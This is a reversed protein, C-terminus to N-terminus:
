GQHPDEGLEIQKKQMEDLRATIRARQYYTLDPEQALRSLQLVAEHIQGRLYYSEAIAESARIRNGSADSARAYLEQLLPDDSNRLLQERLIREAQRAREENKEYLLAEGFEMVIAHNGPFNNYLRDLRELAAATHGSKLDLDAIQLEFALHTQHVMLSELIKRAEDYKGQQQYVIATGYEIAQVEDEDIDARRRRDNFYKLADGPSDSVMARLRAQMLYFDLQSSHEPANMRSARDEAEAIRSVNVPHTRLYEPPGEGGARTVRDMKEFFTVMGNPDYGSQSLTKIGIRDAEAEHQRTFNIQAQQLAATGGILAGQIAEGGGGGALVLGLMALAIPITMAKTKELTRYLHLQTIHAIEHALVGAIENESDATLIMGTFLAIVGGPAAFANVMNENLVVFTFAKDPRDSYSVLRYGMDSFFAAIQPDEVLVEYARMQMLLTRAYDEEEKRSLISDASAGMDPLTVNDTQAVSAMSVLVMAASLLIRQLIPPTKFLRRRPMTVPNHNGSESGLIDPLNQINVFWNM